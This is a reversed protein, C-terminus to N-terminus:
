RKAELVKLRLGDGLVICKYGLLEEAYAKIRAAVDESIYGDCEFVLIDDPKLEARSIRTTLPLAAIVQLLERRDM